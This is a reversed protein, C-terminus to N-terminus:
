SAGKPLPFKVPSDPMTILTGDARCLITIELPDVLTSTGSREFYVTPFGEEDIHVTHGIAGKRAHLHRGYEPIEEAQDVLAQVWDGLRHENM